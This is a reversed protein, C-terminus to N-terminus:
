ELIANVCSEIEPMREAIRDEFGKFFAPHDIVADLSMDDVSAIKETETTPAAARPARSNGTIEALKEIFREDANTM